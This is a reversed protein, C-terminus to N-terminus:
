SRSRNRGCGCGFNTVGVGLRVVVFVVVVAVVTTLLAHLLDAKQLHGVVHGLLEVAHQPQLAGAAATAAARRGGAHLHHKVLRGPVSGLVRSEAHAVQLQRAAEAVQRRNDLHVLGEVGFAPM